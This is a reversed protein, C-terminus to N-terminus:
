GSKTACASGASIKDLRSVSHSHVPTLWKKRDATILHDRQLHDEHLLLHECAPSGNLLTMSNITILPLEIALFCSSCFFYRTRKHIEDIHCIVDAYILTRFSCVQCSYPMELGSHHVNLHQVLEGLRSM